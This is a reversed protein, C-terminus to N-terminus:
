PVAGGAPHRRTRNLLHRVGREVVLGLLWGIVAGGLIDGPYHVGIYVRSLAVLVAVPLAIWLTRPYFRWFVATVAFLNVAHASPFSASRKRSVLLRTDELAVCPRTREFSPQLVRVTLPDSLLLACGVVLVTERGRRRGFALLGLVLPVVVPLFHKLKTIWPFFGDLFPNAWGHNILYFVQTDLRELSNV